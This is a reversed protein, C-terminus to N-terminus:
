EEVLLEVLVGLLTLGLGSVLLIVAVRGYLSERPSLKHRWPDSKGLRSRSMSLKGLLILATAIAALCVVWYSTTM